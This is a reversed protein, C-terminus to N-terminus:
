IWPDSGRGSRRGAGGSRRDTALSGFFREMPITDITAGGAIFHAPADFHTGSHESMELAHNCAIDGDEIRSVARQRFVPHGPWVPMGNHMAHTLDILM